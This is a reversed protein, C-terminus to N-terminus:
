SRVKCYNNVQTGPAWKSFERLAYLIIEGKPYLLVIVAVM